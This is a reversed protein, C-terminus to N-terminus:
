FCNHIPACCKPRQDDKACQFSLTGLEEFYIIKFKEKTITINPIVVHRAGQTNEYLIDGSISSATAIENIDMSDLLFIFLEAPHRAKLKRYEARTDDDLNLELIVQYNHPKKYVIHSAFVPGEGLLIMNHKPHQHPEGHAITETCSLCLTCMIKLILKM